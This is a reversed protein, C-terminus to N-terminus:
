RLILFALAGGAIAILVLVVLMDLLARRPNGAVEPDIEPRWKM